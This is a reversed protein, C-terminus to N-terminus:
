TTKAAARRFRVGCAVTCFKKSPCNRAISLPEGCQACFAAPTPPMPPPAYHARLQELAGEATDSAGFDPLLDIARRTHATGVRVYMRTTEPSSHGLLEQIAFLDAGANYLSSAFTHRLRHCSVDPLALRVFRDFTHSISKYSLCRGNRAGAVAMDRKRQEPPVTQLITSLQANFPIMRDKDGKGHLVQILGAELDISKWRLSAIESLRMGALLGLALIRMDRQWKWRRWKAITEIPTTLLDRVGRLEASSLARPLPSARRPRDLEMAPNSTMHGAKCLWSCFSRAVAIRKNITAPGVDREVLEALHLSLREWTLEAVTAVDGGLATVIYLIEKRYTLIGRPRHNKVKLWSVWSPVLDLLRPAIPTTM